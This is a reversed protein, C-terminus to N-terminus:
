KGAKSVSRHKAELFLQQFQKVKMNVDYTSPLFSSLSCPITTLLVKREKSFMNQQSQHNRGTIGASLFSVCPQLPAEATLLV